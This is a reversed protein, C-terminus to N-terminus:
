QFLDKHMKLQERAAQYGADIAERARHFDMFKMEPVDPEILVDPPYSKLLMGALQAAVIRLSNGLVDFVNLTDKRSFWHKMPTLPAFDIKKIRDNIIKIIMDWQVNSTGREMSAAKRKKQHKHFSREVLNHNLNVAIVIEAGMKRVARVPVPEVLGGDVLVAGDRHVPTFIGPMSISARVAEILDGRDMVVEEGTEIETAIASFPLPLDEINSLAVHQRVFEVIKVGDILGSRPLTFELFYYIVHKWDLILAVNHLTDITGSAFAAGVLSGMSTGAVCDVHIGAEQIARIVGIHAWGRAGGSGLALGIKKRTKSM